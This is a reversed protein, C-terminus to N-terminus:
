TSQAGLDDKIRNHLAGFRRLIQEAREMVPRDVMAGNVVRVGVDQADLIGAAWERQAETPRLADEVIAVQRPHICLKATFGLRRGHDTDDAIGSADDIGGTVGDVPGPLGARASALVLASRSALLAERDTPDVGLETALDFSGFALRDVGNLEAISLADLIGRATEILAVVGTGGMAHAVRSIEQVREAKPLMIGCRLGALQRLDDEHWASDVANIRILCAHDRAWSAAHARAADKNAEAVADELDLVVIGAGSAIAKAFREPRDAPVFLFTSAAGIDKRLRSAPSAKYSM